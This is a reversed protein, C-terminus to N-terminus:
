LNKRRRLEIKITKIQFKMKDKKTMKFIREEKKNTQFVMM